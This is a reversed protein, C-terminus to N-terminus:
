RSYKGVQLGMREAEWDKLTACDVYSGGDPHNGFVRWIHGTTSYESIDVRVVEFSGFYLQSGVANCGFHKNVLEFTCTNM